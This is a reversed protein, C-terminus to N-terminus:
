PTKRRALGLLVELVAGLWAATWLWLAPPLMFVFTLLPVRLFPLTVAEDRLFGPWDAAASAQDLNPRRGEAWWLNLAAEALRRSALFPQTFCFGVLLSTFFPETFFSGLFFSRWLSGGLRWGGGPLLGAGQALAVAGNFLWFLLAAGLGYLGWLLAAAAWQGPRPYGAGRLRASAAEGLPGLLAFALFGLQYRRSDKLWEWLPPAEPWALPWTVAAFAALCLFDSKRV